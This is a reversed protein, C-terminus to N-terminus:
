QVSGSALTWAIHWEVAPPRKPTPRNRWQFEGIFFPSSGLALCFYRYVNPHGPLNQVQKKKKENQLAMSTKIPDDLSKIHWSNPTGVATHKSYSCQCSGFFLSLLDNSITINHIGITKLWRIPIKWDTIIQNKNAEVLRKTCDHQKGVTKQLRLNPYKCRCGRWNPDFDGAHLSHCTLAIKLLRCRRAYCTVHLPTGLLNGQHPVLSETTTTTTTERKKQTQKSNPPMWDAVSIALTDLWTGAAEWIKGNITSPLSRLNIGDPDM